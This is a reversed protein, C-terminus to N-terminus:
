DEESSSVYDWAHCESDSVWDLPIAGRKSASPRSYADIDQVDALTLFSSGVTSASHESSSGENNPLRSSATRRRRSEAKRRAHIDMQAEKAARQEPPLADLVRQRRKAIGKMYNARKKPDQWARLRGQRHREKIERDEWSKRVSERGQATHMPNIEGGPTSNYGYPALTGHSAILEIEKTNLEEDPGTWLVSVTMAKWGYKAISRKLLKCNGWKLDRHRDLRKMLPRVTQGVYGKGSPSTIKYVIGM